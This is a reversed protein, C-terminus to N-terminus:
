VSAPVYIARLLMFFSSACAIDKEALKMEFNLPLVVQNMNYNKHM